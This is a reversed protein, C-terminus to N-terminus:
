RAAPGHLPGHLRYSFTIVGKEGEDGYFDLLRLSYLADDHSRLLYSMETNVTYGGVEYDYTKWDYGIADAASSSPLSSFDSFSIDEFPTPTRMASLEHHNIIVGFVLYPIREGDIPQPANERTFTHTYQTFCLQWWAPAVAVVGRAFSFYTYHLGAEPVIRESREDSGDLLAHRVQLADDALQKFVLKRFGLPAGTADKGLDIVYVIGGPVERWGNGIAKAGRMTPNDWAFDLGEHSTVASFDMQTVRAALMFRSSNLLITGEESSYALDWHTKLVKKTRIGTEGLYVYVQHAYDEGADVIARVEGAVEPLESRGVEDAEPQCSSSFVAFPLCCAFLSRTFLM